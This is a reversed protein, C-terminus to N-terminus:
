RGGFFVVDAEEVGEIPASSATFAPDAIGFVGSQGVQGRGAEGDVGGPQDEDEDGSVQQDPHLPEAEVALQGPGLGLAQAVGKQM